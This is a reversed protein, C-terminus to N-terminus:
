LGDKSAKRLEDILLSTLSFHSLYNVQFTSEYGDETLMRTPAFIEANNALVDLKPYRQKFSEALQYIQKLSKLDAVIYDVDANGTSTVIERRVIEAKAANRAAIVVAFGKKALEVATMKGVGETAGTILCTKNQQSKM